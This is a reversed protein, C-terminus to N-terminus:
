LRYCIIEPLTYLVQCFKVILIYYPYLTLTEEGTLARLGLGIPVIISRREIWYHPIVPFLNRM